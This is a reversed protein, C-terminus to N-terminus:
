NYLLLSDRWYALQHSTRLNRSIESYNGKVCRPSCERFLKIKVKEESLCNYILGHVIDKTM